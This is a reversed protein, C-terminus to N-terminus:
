TWQLGTKAGLDSFEAMLRYADKYRREAELVELMYSLHFRAYGMPLERRIRAFTETMLPAYIGDRLYGPHRLRYEVLDLMEGMLPAAPAYCPAARGREVAALAEETRGFKELAIALKHFYLADDRELRRLMGLGEEAMGWELYTTAENYDIDDLAPGQDGLARGLKRAARYHERMLELRGIDCCCNGLYTKAIFMLHVRGEQAALLYARSLLEAAELNKGAQYLRIGEQCSFFGCPHLRLLDEAAQEDGELLRLLLHLEYQRGTMCPVFEQLSTDPPHRLFLRELLLTDLMYPSALLRERREELSALHDEPLDLLSLGDYMDEYLQDIIEGAQTLFAPNTEYQIGLRALLPLLIDDGARVKGQEIKSLYSVACIGSCLGEQSWNQRLRERRILAGPFSSM